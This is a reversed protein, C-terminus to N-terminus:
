AAQIWIDIGHCLNSLPADDVPGTPGTLLEHNDWGRDRSTCPLVIALHNIVESFNLSSVVVCPRSGGPDRGLRPDLICWAIQGPTLDLGGM